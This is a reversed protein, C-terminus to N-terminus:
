LIARWIAVIIWAGLSALILAIIALVLFLFGIPIYETKNALPGAKAIAEDADDQISNIPVTVDEMVHLEGTEEPPRPAQHDKPFGFRNM